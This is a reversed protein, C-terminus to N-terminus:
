GPTAKAPGFWGALHGPLPHDVVRLDAPDRGVHEAEAAPALEPRRLDQQRGPAEAYNVLSRASAASEVFVVFAHGACSWRARHVPGVIASMAGTRSWNSSAGLANPLGAVIGAFIIISIGNGLGRARHDARGGVDPVHHRDAADSRSSASSSRISFWDWAAQSVAIGLGPVRWAVTGYRHVQHDQPAGEGEKKLQEISSRCRWWSCSSRRRSTRCSGWRSCRSARYRAARSCTSCARRDRGAPGSCNRWSSRSRDRVPIHTGFGTSSLGGVLFWLLRGSTASSEPKQRSGSGPNAM